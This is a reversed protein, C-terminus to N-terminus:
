KAHPKKPLLDLGFHPEKYTGTIAVPIQSGSPKKKFFPDVVKLLFSKVGKSAESLKADMKLQGHIDVKENLLNFSGGLVASAGPIQYSLDTFHAVGNRTVVHGGMTSTVTESPTEGKDGRARLSLKDVSTQRDSNTFRGDAILFDGDLMIKQLFRGPGPPLVVRTRLNIPGTMAPTKERTFFRLLDQIRGDRVTMNLTTTKGNQGTTGAVNGVTAIKTRLFSADVRQLSTNGNTGDVLVHFQTTLHVPHKARKVEFVPVDASGQVDVQRLIGGFRGESSLIGSIGHFAGLNANQFTYSGSLPTQGPDSVKWPGFRGNATIEGSPEPNILRVRYELAHERSVSNLRLQHILFRVPERGGTRAFDVVADDAILEGIRTENKKADANAKSVSSNGSEASSFASNGPESHPPFLIHLRELAIRSIHGPRFFLDPYNTVLKFKGVTFFPASDPGSDGRDFVLGEAICGPRPFYLSHFQRIKVTGSFNEQLAQAVRAQTFPWRRALLFLAIAVILALSGSFIAIWRLWPRRKREPTHVEPM